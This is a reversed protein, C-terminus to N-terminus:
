HHRDRSVEMSEDCVTANPWLYPGKAGSVGAVAKVSSLITDAIERIRRDFDM